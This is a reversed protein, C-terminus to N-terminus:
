VWSRPVLGRLYAFVLVTFLVFQVVVIWRSLLISPDFVKFTLALFYFAGPLPYSIADRYLEGGKAVIDAFQLMHGEDMHSFWRDFFLLQFLLTIAAVAAVELVPGLRPARPAARPVSTETPDM